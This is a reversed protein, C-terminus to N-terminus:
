WTGECRVQDLSTLNSTRSTSNDGNLRHATTPVIFYQTVSVLLGTKTTTTSSSPPVRETVLHVIVEELQNIVQNVDRVPLWLKRHQPLTETFNHMESCRDNISKIAGAESLSLSQQRENHDVWLDSPPISITASIFSLSPCNNEQGHTM